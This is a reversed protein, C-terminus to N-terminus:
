KGPVVELVEVAPRHDCYIVGLRGYNTGGVLADSARSGPDFRFYWRPEIRRLVDSAILIDGLPRRHALIEAVAAPPLLREHIRVIGFEVPAQNDARLLLIERAYVGGDRREQLVKLNVACGCHDRLRLTMHEEHVLLNRAASPLDDPAALKACLDGFHPLPQVAALMDALAAYAPLSRQSKLDLEMESTETFNALAATAAMGGM